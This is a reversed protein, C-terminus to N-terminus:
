ISNSIKNSIRLKIIQLIMIITTTIVSTLPIKDKIISMQASKRIAHTTKIQRETMEANGIKAQIKCKKM